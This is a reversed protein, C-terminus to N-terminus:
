FIAEVDLIDEISFALHVNKLETKNGDADIVVGRTTIMGDGWNEWDLEVITYETGATLGQGDLQCVRTWIIETTTTM